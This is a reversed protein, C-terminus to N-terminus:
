FKTKMIIKHIDHVMGNTDKVTGVLARSRDKSDEISANLTAMQVTMADNSRVLASLIENQQGIVRIRDLNRDDERQSEDAKRAERKQELELKKNDIDVDHEIKKLRIEKFMPIAKVVVYALIVLFGICFLFEPGIGEIFKIMVDDSPM